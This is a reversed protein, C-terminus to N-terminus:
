CVEGLSRKLRTRIDIELESVMTPTLANANSTQDCVILEGRWHGGRRAYGARIAVHIPTNGDHDRIDLRAGCQILTWPILRDFQTDLSEVAVHLPTRGKLNRTNVNAGARHLVRILDARQLQIKAQIHLATDGASDQENVNAGFDCLVKVTELCSERSQVLLASKGDGRRADINAGGDSLIRILPVMISSDHHHHTFVLHIPAELKHNRINVDAGHEILLKTMDIRGKAIAIHLVLDEMGDQKSGSCIRRPFDGSLNPDAGHHLLMAVVRLKGHFVAYNLLTRGGHCRVDPDAGSELLLKVIAYAEWSEFAVQLPSVDSDDAISPDAGQSLLIRVMEKDQLTVAHFLLSRGQLDRTNVNAGHHVLLQVVKRRHSSLARALSRDLQVRSHEGQPMAELLLKVLDEAAGDAAYDLPSWGGSCEEAFVEEHSKGSGGMELLIVRAWKELGIFCAIHLRPPIVEPLGPFNLSYKRWWSDRQISHQGFFSSEQEFFHSALSTLHRAHKPWNLLSYYQLYTKEALSRLCRRALYLHAEEAKIRYEELEPDVDKQDRLLYDKVSQHVFEVAQERFGLMPACIEVADLTAQEESITTSSQCDLIDALAKLSLKRFALSTCILLKKSNDQDDPQINQLMRAFVAPLGKPLSDMAKEVQSRTRKRLLEAMVFGVWLFTGESKGSIVKAANTEFGEDFRLKKSLDRVKSRIFLDVDDSVQGQHDPDLTICTSDDIGAVPRSLVILSLKSFAPDHEVSSFKDVLWHMSNEDCEDIGDVLCFLRQIGVDLCLEGLLTWLTEESSVTAKGREPPDFYPLVYQMLGPHHETIQWLLGRLVASASNQKTEQGVCFYYALSRCKESAIAETLYVSMMTKGKGPGGRIWLLNNEGRLWSQFRPNSQIWSCTGVTRDGKARIINNRDISPDTLFLASRCAALAKGPHPLTLSRRTQKSSTCFRRKSAEPGTGFYVSGAVTGVVGQSNRLITDGIDQQMTGFCTSM